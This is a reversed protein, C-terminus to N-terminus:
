ARTAEVNGGLFDGAVPHVYLHSPLTLASHLRGQLNTPMRITPLTCTNSPQIVSCTSSPGWFRGSLHLCRLFITAPSPPCPTYTIRLSRSIYLHSICVFLFNGEM